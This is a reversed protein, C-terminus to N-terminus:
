GTADDAEGGDYYDPEFWVGLDAALSRATDVKIRDPYAHVLADFAGQVVDDVKIKKILAAM